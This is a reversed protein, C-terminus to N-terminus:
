PDFIDDRLSDAPQPLPDLQFKATSLPYNKNLEELSLSTTTQGKEYMRMFSNDVEKTKPDPVYLSDFNPFYYANMRRRREEPYPSLYGPDIKERWFDVFDQSAEESAVMKGDVFKQSM